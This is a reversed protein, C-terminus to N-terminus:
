STVSCAQDANLCFFFSGRRFRAFLFAVGAVHEHDFDINTIVLSQHVLHFDLPPQQAPVEDSMEFLKFPHNPSFISACNKSQCFSVAALEVQFVWHSNM